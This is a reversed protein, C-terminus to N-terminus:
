RAYLSTQLIQAEFSGYSAQTSYKKTSIKKVAGNFNICWSSISFRKQWSRTARTPLALPCHGTKAPTSTNWLKSTFAKPMKICIQGQPSIPAICYILPMEPVLSKLRSFCTTRRANSPDSKRSQCTLAM